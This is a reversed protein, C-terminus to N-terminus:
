SSPIRIFKTKGEFMIAVNHRGSLKAEYLLNDAEKIADKIDILRNIKIGGGSFTVPKDVYGAVDLPELLRMILSQVQDMQSVNKLLILFEEGGWRIAIDGHRLKKIIHTSFAKLVIDGVDHGYTDNISKFHDVDALILYGCQYFRKKTLADRRLLGTLKDTYFKKELFPGSNKWIFFLIILIFVFWKFGPGQLQRVIFDKPSYRWVLYLPSNATTRMMEQTFCMMYAPCNPQSFSVFSETPNNDIFPHLSSEFAREVDIDIGILGYDYTKTSNSFFSFPFYMIIIKKKSLIDIDLNTVFSSDKSCFVNHTKYSACDFYHKWPNIEFLNRKKPFLQESLDDDKSALGILLQKNTLVYVGLVEPYSLVYRFMPLSREEDNLIPYIYFRERSTLEYGYVYSNVDSEVNSFLSKNDKPFSILEEPNLLKARRLFVYFVNSERLSVLKIDNQLSNHGYFLLGMLLVFAVVFFVVPKSLFGDSFM